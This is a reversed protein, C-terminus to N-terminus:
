WLFVVTADKFYDSQEGTSIQSRLRSRLSGTHGLSIRFTSIEVSFNQPDASFPFKVILNRAQGSNLPAVDQSVRWMNLSSDEMGSSIYSGCDSVSASILSGPINNIKYYYCHDIDLSQWRVSPCTTSSCPDQVDVEVEEIASVDCVKFTEGIVQWLEHAVHPLRSEVYRWASRPISMSHCSVSNLAEKQGDNMKALLTDAPIKRQQVLVSAIAAVTSNMECRDYEIKEILDTFQSVLEENSNRNPDPFLWRPSNPKERLVRGHLFCELRARIAPWCIQFWNKVYKILQRVDM